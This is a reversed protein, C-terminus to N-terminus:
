DITEILAGTTVVGDSLVDARLGGRHILGRLAGKTTLRELHSCPECLRQGLCEVNGVRFRRGVLVNLDIGRTVVNRRAEAYGLTRGDPLTLSDLVEAEILTLDYGRATDNAPTFTGAKAAYRDGELGRNALVKAHDVTQMEGTAREALAIAAVRGRLQPLLSAPAIFAPDLGCLVYGERIPLDSAARGLLSPNQPSLVVGSPTGFMLVAMADDADASPGRQGLVALWYGPWNFTAPKALTVLGAGRGALWSRWHGFAGPLDAHPQPVEAIPTETVSAVCAAFSRVLEPVTEDEPLDVEM